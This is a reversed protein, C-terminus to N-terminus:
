RPVLQYIWFGIVFVTALGTVVRSLRNGQRKLYVIHWSRGLLLASITLLGFSM